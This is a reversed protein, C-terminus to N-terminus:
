QIDITRSKKDPKAKSLNLTLVGNEFKATVEDEKVDPLYMCRQMSGYRRERHVYNDKTEEVSENQEVAITLRGDDLNLKIDEKKIGPLEAEVTYGTESEKVDLRFSERRIEGFPFDGFFDDFLSSFADQRHKLAGTNKKFPILGAM